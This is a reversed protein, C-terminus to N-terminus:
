RPEPLVFAPRGARRDAPGDARLLEPQHTRQEGRRPISRPSRGLRRRQLRRLRLGVEGRALARGARGAAAPEAGPRRCEACSAVSGADSFARRPPAGRGADPRASRWACLRVGVRSRAHSVDGAGVGSPCSIDSASVRRTWGGAHDDDVRRARLDRARRPDWRALTFRSRGKRAAALWGGARASDLLCQDKLQWTRTLYAPGLPIEHRATAESPDHSRAAAIRGRAPERPRRGRRSGQSAYRRAPYKGWGAESWLRAIKRCYAGRRTASASLSSSAAFM